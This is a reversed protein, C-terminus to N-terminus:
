KRDFTFGGGQAGVSITAGEPFEGGLIANALSNQLRSQIV